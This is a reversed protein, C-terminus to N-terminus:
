HDRSGFVCLGPFGAAPRHLDAKNLNAMRAFSRALLLLLNPMVQYVRAAKFGRCRIRQTSPNTSSPRNDQGGNSPLHITWSAAKKGGLFANFQFPFRYESISSKAIRLRARRGIEGGQSSETPM